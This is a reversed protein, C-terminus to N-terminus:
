CCVNQGLNSCGIRRWSLAENDGACPDYLADHFWIAFEVADPEVAVERVHDFETLCDAIHQRNHYHRHPEAYMATIREYSGAPQAQKTATM